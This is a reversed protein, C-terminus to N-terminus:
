VENVDDNSHELYNVMKAILQEVVAMPTSLSLTFGCFEQNRGKPTVQIGLTPDLIETVPANLQVSLENRSFDPRVKIRTWLLGDKFQLETKMTIVMGYPEHRNYSHELQRYKEKLEPTAQEMFKMVAKREATASLEQELISQHVNPYRWIQLATQALLKARAEIAKTDWFELNRLGANLRFPSDRFGGKMDRKEAFPRDSLESNYGTFTLNGITNVWNLHESQWDNGLMERWVKSLRENQPLIHEITYKDCDVVEKREFNELKNLTYWDRGQYIDDQVFHELFEEDNPYRSDSKLRLLRAFIIDAYNSKNLDETLNVFIKDLVNSPLGVIYRRYVYSECIKIIELATSLLILGEDYDGIIELLFPYIVVIEFDNIDQLANKLLREKELEPNLIRAYIKAYKAIDIVLSDVSQDLNNFRYKKFTAYVQDRKPIQRNKHTLYHRFFDAFSFDDQFLKEMPRWVTTYLRNQATGELNMLIFNRILDAQTLDLGTSNMSEFILQPNDHNRDLAIQVIMLKKLGAYIISVDNFDASLQQVFHEFTQQILVAPEDTFAKQELIAVFTNHDNETLALKYKLNGAEDHFLYAKELKDPTTDLTTLNTLRIVKIIAAILLMLTTTRQQGDILLYENIDSFITSNAVYVVSGIFHVGLQESMGVRKIDAYIQKVQENTWSYKRQYIPIKLQNNGRLFQLLPTAEAKM